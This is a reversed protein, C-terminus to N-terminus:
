LRAGPYRRVLKLAGQLAALAKAVSSPRHKLACSKCAQPKGSHERFNMAEGGTGLLVMCGELPPGFIMHEQSIGSM